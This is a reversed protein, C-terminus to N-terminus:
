GDLGGHQGRFLHLEVVEVTVQANWRDIGGFFCRHQRITQVPQNLDPAAIFSAPLSRKALHQHIGLGLLLGLQHGHVVQMEVVIAPQLRHGVLSQYRRHRLQQAGIDLQVVGGHMNFRRFGPMRERHVLVPGGPEYVPVKITRVIEGDKDEYIRTETKTGIQERETGVVRQRKVKQLTEASNTSGGSRVNAITEYTEYTYKTKYIPIEVEKSSFRKEVERYSGVRKSLAPPYFLRNDERRAIARLQLVADAIATQSRVQLDERLTLIRSPPTEGEAVIVLGSADGAPAEQARGPLLLAGAILLLLGSVRNWYSGFM